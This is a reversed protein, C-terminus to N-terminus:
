NGHNYHLVLINVPYLSSLPCVINMLHTRKQAAREDSCHPEDVPHDNNDEDDMCCEYYDGNLLCVNHLVCASIVPHVSFKLDLHDLFLLKRWRGKLLGIAREVKQRLSSLM